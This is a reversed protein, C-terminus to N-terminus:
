LAEYQKKQQKQSIEQLYEQILKLDTIETLQSEYYWSVSSWKGDDYRLLLSYSKINDGGYAHAYTYQIRAPRSNEFHAMDEGLYKAIQVFTGPMFKQGLPPQTVRVREVSAKFIGQAETLREEYSKM